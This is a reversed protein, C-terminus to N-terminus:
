EDQELALLWRKLSVSAGTPRADGAFGGVKGGSGVVRHCPVIVPLPNRRMAQGAARAAKPSGARAALWAYTRTQGYPISRCAKWCRQQFPTGAPLAYASLDPRAGRLYREVDRRLQSAPAAAEPTLTLPGAPTRLTITARM